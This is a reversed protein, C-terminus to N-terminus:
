CSCGHTHYNGNDNIVPHRECNLPHRDFYYKPILDFMEEINKGNLASVEFFEANLKTAKEQGFSSKEIRQNENLIDDKNAVIFLLPMETVNEFIINVWEEIDDFSELSDVSYIIIACDAGHFYLPTLSRYREQGATDWLDLKIEEDGYKIIKMGQTVGVTSQEHEDFTGTTARKIISTKGVAANGCLVVKIDKM